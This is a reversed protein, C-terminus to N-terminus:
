GACVPLQLGTPDTGTQCTAGYATCDGNVQCFPFCEYRTATEICYNTSGCQADSACAM